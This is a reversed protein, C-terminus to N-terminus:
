VAVYGVPKALLGCGGDDPRGHDTVAEHQLVELEPAALNWGAVDGAPRAPPGVPLTVRVVARAAHAVEGPLARGNLPPKIFEVEIGSFKTLPRLDERLRGFPTAVPEEVLDTTRDSLTRLRRRM